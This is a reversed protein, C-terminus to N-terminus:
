SPLGDMKGLQRRVWGTLASLLGDVEGLRESCIRFLEAASVEDYFHVMRNRYGAMQRMAEAKEASLVGHEGLRAGIEKYERTACGFGRALLHRGVDLLAELGRRLCSEATAVNRYDAVFEELSSLPLARIRSLMEQVFAARETVVDIDPERPVM